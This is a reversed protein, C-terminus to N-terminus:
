SAGREALAALAHELTAAVVAYLRAYKEPTPDQERWDRLAYGAKALLGARTQPVCAAVSADLCLRKEKNWRRLIAHHENEGKATNWLRSEEELKAIATLLGADEDGPSGLPRIEIEYARM